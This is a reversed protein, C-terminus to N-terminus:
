SSRQCAGIVEEMLSDPVDVGLRARGIGEPLTCRIRGDRRKKDLRMAEMFPAVPGGPMNVPLGLGTLLADQRDAAVPELLGLRVALQAEVTMGVSVAEGHVLRGSMVVEVAHGVTHGYNLVERPGRDLEDQAVVRAKLAACRLVVEALEAPSALAAAAPQDPTATHSELREFLERDLSMGYKVAEALGARRERAPLSKLTDIDAVVLAPQHFTGVLNKARPHNVATKGGIASDIQALLTTPAQVLPVGRMYTGAVFGALDGIVGGGLAVITDARTLGAQSLADILSAAQRLNKMREGAPVTITNVAFGCGALAATVQGGFRRALPPHTVVAVRGGADLRDLDTGLFSLIGTGVLVDYSRPGLEVRVARRQARGLRELIERAVADVPRAADVTEGTQQYLPEREGALRELSARPDDGLLPRGRDTGVREALVSVPAQLYFVPGAAMLARRNQAALVAGGGTAIVRRGGRVADRIVAREIARFRAEGRQRFTEAISVGERAEIMADTDVFEWGLRRAVARGTESKGSGMPGVLSIVRM